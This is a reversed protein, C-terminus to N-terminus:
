RSKEFCLLHDWSEGGFINIGDLVLLLVRSDSDQLESHEVGGFTSLEDSSLNNYGFTAVVWYRRTLISRCDKRASLCALRDSPLLSNFPLQALFSLTLM